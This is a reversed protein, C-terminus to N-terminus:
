KRRPNMTPKVYFKHCHNYSLWWNSNDRGTLIGTLAFAESESWCIEGHSGPIEVQGSKAHVYHIMEHIATYYNVIGRNGLGIFITDGGTYRGLQGASLKRFEVKPPKIGACSYAM